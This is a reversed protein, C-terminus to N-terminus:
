VIDVGDTLEQGDGALIRGNDLVIIKVGNEVDSRGYKDVAIVVVNTARLSEDREYEVQIHDCLEM